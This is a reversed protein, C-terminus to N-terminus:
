LAIERELVKTGDALNITEALHPGEFELSVYGHAGYEQEHGSVYMNPADLM